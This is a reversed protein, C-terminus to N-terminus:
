NLFRTLFDKTVKKVSQEKINNGITNRLHLDSQVSAITVGNFDITNDCKQKDSNVTVILKTKEPNFKVNYDSAYKDCVDLLIYMGRKTPALLIIDDAYSFVSM